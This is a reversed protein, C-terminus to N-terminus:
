KTEGKRILEPDRRLQGGALCQLLDLVSDEETLLYRTPRWVPAM